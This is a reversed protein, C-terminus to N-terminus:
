GHQQHDHRRREREEGEAGGGRRLGDGARGPQAREGVLVAGALAEQDLLHGAVSGTEEVGQRLTQPVPVAADVVVEVSDGGRNRGPQPLGRHVHQGALAPLQDGLFSRHQVGGLQQAHDGVVVVGGCRVVARLHTLPVGPAAARLDDRQAVEEPRRDM